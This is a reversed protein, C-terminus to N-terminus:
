LLFTGRRAFGSSSWRRVPMGFYVAQYLSTIGLSDREQLTAGFDLVRAKDWSTVVSFVRTHKEKFTFNTSLNGSFRENQFANQKLGVGYTDSVSNIGFPEFEKKPNVQAHSYNATLSTGFSTLPVVYNAFLAGFRNGFSTGVLFTDDFGLFNNHRLMFGFRREGTLKVGQNDYTFDAHVPFHEEVKLVIDTTRKEKGAKLIPRVLRDPNGSMAIAAARIQDYKLYDGEVINWNKLILRDNFWRNGEISLEGMRSIILEMKMEQNELKQPPLSVVALYGHARFVGEIKQIVERVEKFTLERMEYAQIIPLYEEEPILLDGQLIIKKIYFPRTELGLAEPEEKKIDVAEPAAMRESAEKAEEHIQADIVEASAGSPLRPEEQAAALGEGFVACGLFFIGALTFSLKKEFSKLQKKMFVCIM